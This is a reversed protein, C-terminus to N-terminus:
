LNFLSYPPSLEVRRMRKKAQSVTECGRGLDVMVGSKCIVFWVYM